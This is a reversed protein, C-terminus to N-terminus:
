NESQKFGDPKEKIIGETIMNQKFIEPISVAEGKTILIDHKPPYFIHFDKQPDEIEFWGEKKSKRM